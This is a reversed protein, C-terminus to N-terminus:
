LFNSRRLIAVTGLKAIQFEWESRYNAVALSNLLELIKELDINEDRFYHLISISDKSIKWIVSGNRM